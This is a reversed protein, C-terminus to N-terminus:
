LSFGFVREANGSLVKRKDEDKMGVTMKEAVARSHPWITASHPYDSSFMTMSSLWPWLGTTIMQYGCYDDVNTTFVNRGIFEIPPVQLKVPQWTKQIDWHHMMTQVWFPVWGCDV